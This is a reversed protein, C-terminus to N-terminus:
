IQFAYIATTNRYTNFDDVHWLVRKRNNSHQDILDGYDFVASTTVSNSRFGTGVCLAAHDIEGDDAWDYFMVERGDGVLNNSNNVYAYSNGYGTKTWKSVLKTAGLDNKLYNKLDDAVSWSTSYGMGAVIGLGYFWRDNQSLGGAYLCQSVFNSCDKDMTRYAPWNPNLAYKDAYAIAASGSYAYVSFPISIFLAFALVTSIAKQLSKKKM